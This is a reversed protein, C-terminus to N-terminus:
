KPVWCQRQGANKLRSYNLGNTQGDTVFFVAPRGWWDPRAPIDCLDPWKTQWVRELRCWSPSCGCTPPCSRRPTCCCPSWRCWPPPCLWPSTYPSPGFLRGSAVPPGLIEININEKQDEKEEEEEENEVFAYNSHEFFLGMKRRWFKPNNCFKLTRM